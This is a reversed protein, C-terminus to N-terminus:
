VTFVTFKYKKTHIYLMHRHPSSPHFKVSIHGVAFLINHGAKFLFKEHIKNKEYIHKKLYVLLHNHGFVPKLVKQKQWISNNTYIYM